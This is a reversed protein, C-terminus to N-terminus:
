ESDGGEDNEVEIRITVDNDAHAKAIEAFGIATVGDDFSFATYNIEVTYKMM